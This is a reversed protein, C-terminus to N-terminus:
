QSHGSSFQICAAVAARHNDFDGLDHRKGQFPLLGAQKASASYIGNECTIIFTFPGRSAGWMEQEPFVPPMKEIKM